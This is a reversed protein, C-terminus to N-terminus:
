NFALSPNMEGMTRWDINFRDKLIRKKAKEFDHYESDLPGAKSVGIEKRALDEAEGVVRRYEPDLEIRDRLCGIELDLHYNRIGFFGAQHQLEATLRRRPELIQTEWYAGFGLMFIAALIAITLLRSSHDKASM